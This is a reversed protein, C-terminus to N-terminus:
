LIVKLCEIEFNQLSVKQYHYLLDLHHPLGVPSVVHQAPRYHPSPMRVPRRDKGTMEAEFATMATSPYDQKLDNAEQDDM